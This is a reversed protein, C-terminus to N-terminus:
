EEDEKLETFDEDNLGSINNYVEFVAQNLCVKQSESCVDGRYPLTDVLDELQSTLNAAKEVFEKKIIM